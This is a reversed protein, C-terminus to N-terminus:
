AVELVEVGAVNLWYITDDIINKDHTYINIAPVESNLTAIEFGINKEISLIENDSLDNSLYLTKFM